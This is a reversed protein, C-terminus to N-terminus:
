ARINEDEAMQLYHSFCWGEQGKGMDAQKQKESRVYVWPMTVNRDEVSEGAKLYTVVAGINLYDNIEASVEQEPFLYMQRTLRYKKNPILELGRDPWAQPVTGGTKNFLKM